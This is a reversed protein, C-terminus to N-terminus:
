IVRITLCASQRHDATEPIDGEFRGRNSPALRLGDCQKVVVYQDAPISVSAYEGIRVPARM